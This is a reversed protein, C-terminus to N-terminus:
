SPDERVSELAQLRDLVNLTITDELCRVASSTIRIEERLLGVENRLLGVEDRVTRMERQVGRLEERMARQEIIINALQRSLFNLDIDAM